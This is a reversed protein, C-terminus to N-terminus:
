FKEILNELAKNISINCVLQDNSQQSSVINKISLNGAIIWGLQTQQLIPMEPGLKIQNPCLLEYFIGGGVLIDIGDSNNFQNDALVVHDPIKLSNIPFDISNIM